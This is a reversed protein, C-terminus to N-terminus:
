LILHEERRHSAAGGPAERWKALLQERTAPDQVCRGALCRFRRLPRAGAQFCIALNHYSMGSGVILVGQDRLPALANGMALHLTSDLGAQLSLAPDACRM